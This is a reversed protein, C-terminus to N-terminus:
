AFKSSKETFVVRFIRETFFGSRFTVPDKFGWIRRIEIWFVESTLTVSLISPDIIFVKIIASTDVTVCNM